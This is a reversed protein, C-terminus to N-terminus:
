GVVPRCAGASLFPFRAAGRTMSRHPLLFAVASGGNGALAPSSQRADVGAAALRAAHAHAAGARALWGADMSVKTSVDVPQSRRGVAAADEMRIRGHALGDLRRDIRHELAMAAVRVVEHLDQALHLLGAVPNRRLRDVPHLLDHAQRAGLDFADGAEIREQVRLRAAAVPHQEAVVDGVPHQAVHLEELVHAPLEPDFAALGGLVAEDADVRRGAGAHAILPRRHQDVVDGDRASVLARMSAIQSSIRVAAGSDAQGESNKRTSSLTRRSSTM